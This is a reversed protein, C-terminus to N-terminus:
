GAMIADGGQRLANGSEVFQLHTSLSAILPEIELTCKSSLLDSVTAENQAKFLPGVINKASLVCALVASAAQLQQPDRERRQLGLRACACAGKDGAAGNNYENNQGPQSEVCKQVFFSKHQIHGKSNDM